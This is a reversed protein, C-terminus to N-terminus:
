QIPILSGNGFVVNNGQYLVIAFPANNDAAANQPMQFDVEYVGVMDASYEASLVLVGSNNVGVVVGANV